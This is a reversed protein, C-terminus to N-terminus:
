QVRGDLEFVDGAKVDFPHFEDLDVNGPDSVVIGLRRGISLYAENVGKECCLFVRGDKVGLFFHANM